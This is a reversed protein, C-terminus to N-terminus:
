RVLIVNGSTVGTEGTPRTYNIVYVYTGMECDKGEFQGNWSGDMKTTMFVVEGYRNYVTLDYSLLDYCDIQSFNDNFGDGNPSFINPATVKCICPDPVIVIEDTAECGNIIVSVSYTGPTSVLFTNDTSGDQWVYDFTESGAELLITTGLCLSADPGLDVVPQVSYNVLVSDKDNCGGVTVTVYYLGDDTITFTPETSGDQWLYAAGPTTVDITYTNELGCIVTDEPLSIEPAPVYNVSITDGDVCNGDTVIVSYTGNEDVTLTPLTSGDQWLYTAGPTLVNFTWLQGECLTLDPGLNVFDPTNVVVNVTDYIAVGCADTLIVTYTTNEEPSAWPNKIDTDSLGESPSWEYTVFDEPLNFQVSDGPCITVDELADIETTYEFCIIQNNYLSGTGATFGFYVEPDGAFITEIIDFVETIFGVRYECDVFVQLHQDGADWTIKVFHYEGDEINPEGAVIQAPGDLNYIGAHDLEGNYQIAIHDYAPDGYDGNQYTDFEIGLSPTIGLYGMGGGADGLGTGVPQLVFYMGDAGSADLDGMNLQFNIEFNEELNILTEYWISGASFTTEETLQYCDGGLSVADGNLVFQAKSTYFTIMLVVAACYKM